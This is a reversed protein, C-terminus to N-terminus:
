GMSLGIDRFINIRQDMSPYKAITKKTFMGADLNETAALEHGVLAWTSDYLNRYNESRLATCIFSQRPSNIDEGSIQFFGYRDCLSRVKDLQAASNRSPMYTVARFRLDHLVTFLEELYGDEFKQARKDGTASNEIDGLYAYASIAGTNESLQLIDSIDPCEEAANIYIDSVLESKLFGLLDYKYHPNLPDSLYDELKGGIGLKFQNKLFNVLDKGKGLRDILKLSLAFLLHRETISGGYKYNSLPLIDKEYDLLIGSSAILRNINETMRRNRVNRYATYPKFYERVTNIQTHPIGHLTVYAISDQDPNNMKRGNLPTKSFDARCEVGITTALGAIGGAEIFERAGSISDHDMIGATALGAAYAMWVAKAPSYPSFSYSTHIHNNVDRTKVPKELVGSKVMKMLQGLSDLRISADPHNLSDVLKNIENNM